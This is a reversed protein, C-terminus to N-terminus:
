LYIKNHQLLKRRNWTHKTKKGHYHRSDQFSKKEANISIIIYNKDKMRNYAINCQNVKRKLEYTSGYKCELFLDWKTIYYLGKLTSNFENQWHKTSIKIDINM